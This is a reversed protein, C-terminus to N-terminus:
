EVFLDIARKRDSGAKLLAQLRPSDGAAIADRVERLNGIITDIETLLPERNCLFLEAWMVENLRAVRTLDKYSGASYGNHRDAEPSKIYANSVVHALQSTFAIMKDHNEATTVVVKGFELGRFFEQLEMLLADDSAETPTLIMSAGTFLSPLTYDYGSFERGAMPHGGVFRLGNQACFPGLERCVLEKVGCLDVIVTGPRLASAHQKVFDVTQRPYLAILLLGAELVAAIGARDIAQDRLAKEEVSGDLDYGAVACDTCRKVTKAMSGGILGLGVIGVTKMNLKGKRKTKKLNRGTASKKYKNPLRGGGLPAAYFPAGIHLLRDSDESADGSIRIRGWGM